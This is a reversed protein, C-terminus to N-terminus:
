HYHRITARQRIARVLGPSVQTTTRVAPGRTYRFSIAAFAHSGCQNLASRQSRAGREGGAFGEFGGHDRNTVPESIPGKAPHPFTCPLRIASALVRLSAAARIIGAAWRALRM